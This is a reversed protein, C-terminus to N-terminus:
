GNCVGGGMCACRSKLFMTYKLLVARGIAWDESLLRGSM